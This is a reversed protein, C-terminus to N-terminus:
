RGEIASGPAALTLDNRWSGNDDAPTAALVVEMRVPQDQTTLARLTPSIKLLPDNRDLVERSPPSGKAPVGEGPEPMVEAELLPWTRRLPSRLEEVPVRPTLWGSGQWRLDELLMDLNGSPVTGVLRTHGRNDYAVAEHF